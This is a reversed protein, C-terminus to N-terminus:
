DNVYLLRHCRPCSHVSTFKQLEIFMQPPLNVNCELCVGQDVAALAPTYRVRITNYRKLLPAPVQEEHTQRIKEQESIKAELESLEKEKEAIESEIAKKEAEAKETVEKLLTEKEAIKAQLTAIEAELDSTDKKNKAIEKLAAQYEKNNRIDKLKTEREQIFDTQEQMKREKDAKDTSFHTLEKQTHEVQTLLSNLKKSLDQILEPIEHRNELLADLTSDIQSLNLLKALENKM